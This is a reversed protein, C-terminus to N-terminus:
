TNYIRYIHMSFHHVFEPSEYVDDIIAAVLFSGAHYVHHKCWAGHGSGSAVSVSSGGGSVVGNYSDYLILSENYDDLFGGGSTYALTGPSSHVNMSPLEYFNGDYPQYAYAHENSCFTESSFSGPFNLGDFTAIISITGAAPDFEWYQEQPKKYVPAYRDRDRQYQGYVKGHKNDAVISTIYPAPHHLWDATSEVTCYSFTFTNLNLSVGDIYYHSSVNRSNGFCLYDDGIIVPSTTRAPFYLQNPVLETWDGGTSCNKYCIAYENSDNWGGCYAWISMDAKQHTFLWEISWMVRTSSVNNTSFDVTYVNEWDYWNQVVVMITRDTVWSIIGNNWSSDDPCTYVNLKKTSGHLIDYECLEFTREGITSYYIYRKNDSLINMGITYGYFAPMGSFSKSYIEDATNFPIAKKEWDISSRTDCGTYGNIQVSENNRLASATGPVYASMSPGGSARLYATLDHGGSGKLFSPLYKGGSGKLFGALTKTNKSNLYSALTKTSFTNLYAHIYPQTGELFAQADKRMIEIISVDVGYMSKLVSWYSQNDPPITINAIKGDDSLTILLDIGSPLVLVYSSM